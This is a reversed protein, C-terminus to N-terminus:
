WNQELGSGWNGISVDVKLPVCLDIDFVDFLQPREMINKLTKLHTEAFENRVRGVTADHITGCVQLEDKPFTDVIEILSMLTLEAGFGQVPSNIANREAEARLMKDPSNIEPLHRIRGTMTRVMGYRQVKKRCKIHWTILDPYREFFRKRFRKAEEETVIVGYKDRSYDMFKRWGMGYIFGFNIAKAKKRVEKEILHPPIGTAASATELHIDGGTQFIRIMEEEHALIAAIRLEVQSYDAEFFTWGEPASVLSRILKERPVQQLNPDSSSPRGTVTGPVKFSPHLWCGDHLRKIWGEVFSGRLKEAGRYELLPDIIKHQGRMRKLFDEATSPEGKPTVGEPKLKLKEFLIKKVQQSSNWNVPLKNGKKDSTIVWSSNIYSDLQKLLKKIKKQLDKKVIELKDVNIYTGNSEVIEYARGVPQVLYTFLTWLGQEILKEKLVPYLELTSYNDWAAYEYLELISAKGKKTQEDVDWPEVNLYRRATYKLSIPNNEDVLHAALMTDFDLPFKIGFLKELWLNDFKGNQAIVIRKKKGIKTNLAQKILNIIKLQASKPFNWLPIIWQKNKPNSTALGLVNIAAGVEFRNLGTTELDFAIHPSKLIHEVCERLSNIGTVVTYDLKHSYKIEGKDILEIFKEIDMNVLGSKRPDRIAVNPHFTPFYKIGDKEIVTGHIETIKAKGIAAKLALAGLTLVYKPNVRKIEQHLYEKCTKLETSNISHGEPSKCKVAHTLFFNSIRYNKKKFLDDLLTAYNGIFAAGARDEHWDPSDGIIM